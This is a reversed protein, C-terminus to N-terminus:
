LSLILHVSLEARNNKEKGKLQWPWSTFGGKLYLKAVKQLKCGIFASLWYGRGYYVPVNFSGPADREYAYIRDDWDDVKFCGAKIYSTFIKDSYGGELYALLALTNGYVANARFAGRWRCGEYKVDMRCNLSSKVGQSRIQESLKVGITFVSDIRYTCNLVAKIKRLDGGTKFSTGSLVVPCYSLDLSLNGVFRRAANVYGNDKALKMWRGASFDGSLAVGHENSCRSSARIAGTFDANYGTPYYRLCVGAKLNECCNWMAGAVVAVKSSFVDAAVETWFDVGRLCASFDFAAKMAYDKSNIGTAALTASLRFNRLMYAVNLVPMLAIQEIPKVDTRLNGWRASMIEDVGQIGLSPSLTWRGISFEAAM